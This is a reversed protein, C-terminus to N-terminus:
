HITNNEETVIKKYVEDLYIEISDHILETIAMKLVPDMSKYVQRNQLEIVVAEFVEEDINIM